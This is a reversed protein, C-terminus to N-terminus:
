RYEVPAVTIFTCLDKLWRYWSWSRMIYVTAGVDVTRTSEVLMGAGSLHIDTGKPPDDELYNSSLMTSSCMISFIVCCTAPSACLLTLSAPSCPLRLNTRANYVAARPLPLEFQPLGRYSRSWGRLSIGSKKVMVTYPGNRTPFMRMLFLGQTYSFFLVVLSYLITGPATRAPRPTTPSPPLTCTHGYRM